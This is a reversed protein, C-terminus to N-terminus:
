AKAGAQLVVSLMEGAVNNLSKSKKEKQKQEVKGKRGVVDGRWYSIVVPYNVSDELECEVNGGGEKTL